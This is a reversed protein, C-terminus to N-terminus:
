TLWMIVVTVPFFWIVMGAAIALRMPMLLPELISQCSHELVSSIRQMMSGSGDTMAALRRPAPLRNRLGPCSGLAAKSASRLASSDMREVWILHRM